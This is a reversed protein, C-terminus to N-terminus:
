GVKSKMNWHSVKKVATKFAQGPLKKDLWIYWYHCVVGITVGSVSMNRCRTWDFKRKEDKYKEYKQEISDGIGSLSASLGINTILLQNQFM